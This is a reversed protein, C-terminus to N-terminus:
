GPRQRFSAVCRVAPRRSAAWAAAVALHHGAHRVVQARRQRRQVAVQLRQGLHRGLRGAARAPAASACLSLTRRRDCCSNSSAESCDVSWTSCRSRKLRSSSTLSATCFNSGRARGRRRHQVAHRGAPQFQVAVQLQDLTRQAVQDVVGSRWAAPGVGTRTRSCCCAPWASTITSSLPGPRGASRDCRSACPWDSRSGGSCRGPPPMPPRPRAMACRTAWSCPPLRRGSGAGPHRCAATGPGASRASPQGRVGLVQRGPGDGV